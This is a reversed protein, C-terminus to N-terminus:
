RDGMWKIAISAVLFLIVLIYIIPLYTIINQTMTYNTYNAALYNETKISSLSFAFFVVILSLVIIEFGKQTM